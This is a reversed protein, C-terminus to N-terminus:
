RPLKLTVRITEGRKKRRGSKPQRPAANRLYTFVERGDKDVTRIVKMKGNDM